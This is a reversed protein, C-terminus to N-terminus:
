TFHAQALSDINPTPVRPNGQCGLEGYGLDDAVIVVINPRHEAARLPAFPTVCLLIALLALIM